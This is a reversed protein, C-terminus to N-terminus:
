RPPSKVSKRAGMEKGSPRRPAILVAALVLPLAVALAVLAAAGPVGPTPQLAAFAAWLASVLTGTVAASFAAGLISALLLRRFM